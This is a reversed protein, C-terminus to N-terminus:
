YLLHINNPNIINSLISYEIKAVYNTKLYKFSVAYNDTLNSELSGFIINVRLAFRLPSM